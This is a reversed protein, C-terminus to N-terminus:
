TQKRALFALFSDKGGSWFFVELPDVPAANLNNNAAERKPSPPLLTTRQVM